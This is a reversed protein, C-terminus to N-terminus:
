LCGSLKLLDLNVQTFIQAYACLACGLCNGRWNDVM